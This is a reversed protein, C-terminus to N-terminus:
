DVQWDVKRIEVIGDLVVIKDFAKEEPAGEEVAGNANPPPAVFGIAKSLVVFGNSITYSDVEYRRAIGGSYVFVRIM